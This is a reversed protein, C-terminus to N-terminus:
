LFSSYCDGLRWLCGGCLKLLQLQWELGEDSLATPIRCWYLWADLTHDPSDPNIIPNHEIFCTLISKKEPSSIYAGLGSKTAIGNFVTTLFYRLVTICNLNQEVLKHRMWFYICNWYFSMEGLLQTRREQFEIKSILASLKKSQWFDRQWNLRLVTGTHSKRRLSRFAFPWLSSLIEGIDSSANARMLFNQKYECRPQLLALHLSHLPDTGPSVPLALPTSPFHFIITNYDLLTVQYM